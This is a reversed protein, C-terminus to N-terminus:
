KKEVLAEGEFVMLESILKTFRLPDKIPSGETLLAQDYLLECYDALKGSGRDQEYLRNLIQMIAHDPNLELIRKSEPVDQNMAKLIREMHANMGYEDAVLCCASDTLRSSLRVEQVKEALKDKIFELLGLYQKKAEEQKVEKEKKEEETDVELEGKLVSKLKKGDYEMLSQAVWEDIPDILFLVEYDKRRCIELHPSNEVASRDTGTIYYIEKQASPMREVYEKLSVYKGPETKSSQYLLLEQLKEKNAHDFHIGEKLVAGFEGYFKLYDEPTKEKMEALTGLVKGVLNKQIRKIQVDEQLIERSVNLPLDSSDVVGKVFRLYEPLLNECRDTIFVRKVYLHVGKRHPDHLFLDFQKQEPIYLLAKFESTGEAAYHITRFPNNFDHSIHKYFENYEDETIESKPRTWIAKMSNLTEEETKKIKEAGEIPKGDIGQPLEERTIDMTVPYQVYDSYKKVISRIRWEDLYERMDEKLHLTVDTGRTEKSCEEITYSGDGVSEWRTAATREGARRTVLTVKDAAMFSAYFGVGFQGIMEPHDKINQGKLNELFARTGSKAITGINSEVEEMSMGIGNDRITLTGADKDPILKIKWDPDNELVAPNTHSEFRAKDIADSANSILERLFIDRNSYLSHIVLDLLQQVETQFHKTVKAM